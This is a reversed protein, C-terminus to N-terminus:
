DYFSKTLAKWQRKRIILKPDFDIIQKAIKLHESAIEPEDNKLLWAIKM